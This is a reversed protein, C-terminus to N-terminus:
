CLLYSTECLCYQLPQSLPSPHSKPGACVECPDPLKSRVLEWLALSHAWCRQSSPGCAALSGPCSQRAGAWCATREAVPGDEGGHPWGRRGLDTREEGPSLAAQLFCSSTAVVKARPAQLWGQSFMWGLLVRCGLAAALSLM